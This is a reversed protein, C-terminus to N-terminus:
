ISTTTTTTASTTGGLWECGYENNFDNQDASYKKAISMIRFEQEDVKVFDLIKGISTTGVKGITSFSTKRIPSFIRKSLRDAYTKAVELDGLAAQDYLMVKRFPILNETATASKTYLIANRTDRDLTFINIRNVTSAYSIEINKENLIIESADPRTPDRYFESVFSAGTVESFLGGPLKKIHLQGDSDFYVFAEFRKVIDMICQFITNKSPFRMAPKTFTYGSPLFYDDTNDTGGESRFDNVFRTIGARKALDAIAYYAVMGDYFPSNIILMNKVIFMYDECQLSLTEKGPTESSSVSTIIGTFTKYINEGWGWYIRIGYQRGKLYDYEGNKNYIVVNANTTAHFYDPANSTETASIVDPIYTYSPFDIDRDVNYGGKIRFFYPCGAFKISFPASLSADSPTSFQVDESRFVLIYFDNNPLSRIGVDGANVFYIAGLRHFGVGSPNIIDGTGRDIFEYCDVGYLIGVRDPQQPLIAVSGDLQGNNKVGKYAIREIRGRDESTGGLISPLPTAFVGLPAFTMPAVNIIAQVNSGYMRMRGVAIKCEKFTGSSEEGSNGSSNNGNSGNSGTGSRSGNSNQNNQEDIKEVRAYIVYVDNIWIILRGAVTMLGINVDEQSDLVRSLDIDFDKRVYPVRSITVEAGSDVTSDETWNRGRYYDIIYPKRNVGLVIDYAQLEDDLGLSIIFLTEHNASAPSRAVKLHVWLPMNEKIFPNSEIGWWLGDRVVHQNIWHMDKRAEPDAETSWASADVGLNTLWQYVERIDNAPALKPRVADEWQPGIYDASYPLNMQPQQLTYSDYPQPNQDTVSPSFTDKVIGKTEDIATWLIYPLVPTTGANNSGGSYSIFNDIYNVRKSPFIAAFSDLPDVINEVCFPSLFPSNQITDWQYATVDFNYKSAETDIHILSPAIEVKVNAKGLNNM